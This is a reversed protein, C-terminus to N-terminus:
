RFGHLYPNAEQERGVTTEPGHGPYVRTEEPLVMLQDHISRMLTDFDGGPLDTRGISGAFLVDGSLVLGDLAYTVSGPSHGPTHLVRFTQGFFVLSEGGDLHHDAERCRIPEMGPWLGSGNKRPDTLWDGELRHIYVPAGTKERVPEVAGIHDFHAHTLLIAEVQLGLEGIRSLVRDPEAGPDVVVGHRSSEDYLLYCNAMVPGLAYSEIRVAV